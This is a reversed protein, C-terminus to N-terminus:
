VWSGTITGAAVARVYLDAVVIWIMSAWAWEQHKNNLRSVWTWLKYRVPHKSFSNIRGATIHRCSHCGFTYGAILVANIVLVISGVGVRFGDKGWFSNLAEWALIFSFVVAPYWTYRHINNLILPFRTEGTYKKHPEQVACAPPSFWLSRYYSKRYYYCTARFMGPFILIYLAPSIGAWPFIDLHPAGANAANPAALLPSYFPALYHQADAWYYNGEFARWTGYVVFAVLGTGALIPSLWWRDTRLTRKDLQVPKKPPTEPTPYPSTVAGVDTAM